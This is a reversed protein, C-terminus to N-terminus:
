SATSRPWPTEPVPTIPGRGDFWSVLNDVLLQGMIARTHHTASAIHPLVVVNDNELLARPVRPENAFVDLGAGLITGDQLAHVLAAEDVVSGRAVNILIGKPGLAALVNTSILHRTAPGGPVVVILTDVDRAMAILDAYYPWPVEPRPHRAHYVVPVDFAAIRKAIREGIRGMGVMGITRDRLTPSLPFAAELWRGERIWRDAQPLRRVTALLVGVAFDAVEDDLVRPTNTVVIGRRVAAPLDITDYGVGFNAIIELAPLQDILKATTPERGRTAVARIRPGHRAVIAAIGDFGSRHVEFRAALADEVLPLLEGLILVHENQM